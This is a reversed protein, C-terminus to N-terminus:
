GQNLDESNSPVRIKRHTLCLTIIKFNNLNNSINLHLNNNTAYLLTNMSQNYVCHDILTSGNIDKLGLDINMKNVLFDIMDIIDLKALIHILSLGGGIDEIQNSALEPNTILFEKSEEERNDFILYFLNRLKINRVKYINAFKKNDTIRYKASTFM